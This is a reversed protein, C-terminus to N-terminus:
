KGVLKALVVTVNASVLAGNPHPGFGPANFFEVRPGISLTGNVQYDFGAGALASYHQQATGTAPVNRVIGFAGHVYPKISSLSSKKLLSDLWSFQYKVGGLYSQLNIGPALINDSQLQLRPTLNFSGIADTGPQTSGGIRVAVAQTSVSFLPSTTSAPTQAMTTSGLLLFLLLLKVAPPIYATKASSGDPNWNHALRAQVIAALALVGTVVPKWKDPVVSVAQNGLALIGILTQIIITHTSTM